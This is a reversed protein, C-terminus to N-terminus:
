DIINLWLPMPQVQGTPHLRKWHLGGSGPHRTGQFLHSWSRRSQSGRRCSMGYQMHRLVPRPSIWKQASLGFDLSVSVAM